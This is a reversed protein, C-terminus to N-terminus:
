VDDIFKLIEDKMKYADNYGLEILPKTYSPDFALYSLLDLGEKGSVGIGKLLYRLMGPLESTIDCSMQGLDKSPRILLIPITKLEPHAGESILENIRRLREVDGDLSDLFIANLMTGAIQGMTPVQFSSFTHSKINEKDHPHRVGIAILKQAGLHIAPSLPTTQRICGDGYFSNGIQVPPFFFPIAASAMLHDVNLETRHSFRDSRTWDRITDQGQYFIVSSGTNYNTTSLSLGLLKKDELNKQIHSFDIEKNALKRLPETDLLHNVNSGSPTLGGFITGSIWKMGLDTITRKRLDYIHQPKVNSWLDCLNHTAVDWNECSSALYMSNIAGASNGSIVDFLSNKKGIIEYLARVVGVQFAARAGGGTM